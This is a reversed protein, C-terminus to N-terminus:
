KTTVLHTNPDYTFTVTSDAALTMTYNPGNLAGDSGYNVGWSGDLAVKYEYSGAKL